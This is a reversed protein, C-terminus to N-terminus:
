SFSYYKEYKNKAKQVKEVYRRTEPYPIRDLTKGDASYNANNLWMAVTGEGANYAALYTEEELFRARLYSFYRVGLRVNYEPSYLYEELYDYGNRGAIFEATSPLIQMLGVAGKKSVARPNFSSETRIVAFLFAASFSNEEAYKKVTEKYRVPYARAISLPRATLISFFLFIIILACEFAKLFKNM